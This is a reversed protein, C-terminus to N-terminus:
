SIKRGIAAAAIWGLSAGALLLGALALREAVTPPSEPSVSVTLTGKTDFPLEAVVRGYPDIVASIGGHAVRLLWLRQEIARFAVFAVQQRSPAESVFWSDNALNLIALTDGDRRATVLGPYLAEFCLAVAFSASGRLPRQDTGEEVYRTLASLGMLASLEQRGPFRTASEIVPIARTKDFQAVIGQGPDLWLASNRYRGDPDSRSSRVAGLIVPVGIRDVWGLLHGRLASDEEVPNTVVTEPWLVLDPAESSKALAAHTQRGVIALNTRQVSRVWRESPPIKPQVLLLSHSTTSSGNTMSRAAEITRVGFSALATWAGLAAAAWQVARLRERGHAQIAEAIAVNAVM